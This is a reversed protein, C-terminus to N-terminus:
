RDAVPASDKDPTPAIYVNERGPRDSADRVDIVFFGAHELATRNEKNSASACRPPPSSGSGRHSTTSTGCRSFRWNSTMSSPASPSTGSVTSLEFSKPPTPLWQEWARDSLQRTEYVCGTLSAKRLVRGSPRVRPLSTAGAGAGAGRLRDGFVEVLHEWSAEDASVVEYSSDTM